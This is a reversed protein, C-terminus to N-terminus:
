IINTSGDNEHARNKGLPQPTHRGEVALAVLPRIDDPLDLAAVFAEVAEGGGKDAALQAVELSRFYSKLSAAVDVGGKVKGGFGGGDDARLIELLLRARETRAKATLERAGRPFSLAGGQVLVDATKSLQTGGRVTADGAAGPAADAGGLLPRAPLGFHRIKM